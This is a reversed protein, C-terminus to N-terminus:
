VAFMDSALGFTLPRPSPEVTTTSPAETSPSSALNLHAVTMDDDFSAQCAVTVLIKERKKKRTKVLPAFKCKHNKKPLGCLRCMYRGRSHRRRPKKPNEKKTSKSSVVITKEKFVKKKQKRRKMPLASVSDSMDDVLTPSSLSLANTDDLLGPSLCNGVSACSSVSSKRARPNSDAYNDTLDVSRKRDTNCNESKGVLGDSEFSDTASQFLLSFLRGELDAADVNADFSESDFVKGDYTEPFETGHPSGLDGSFM